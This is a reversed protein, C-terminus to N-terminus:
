LNQENDKAREVQRKFMFLRQGYTKRFFYELSEFQKPAFEIKEITRKDDGFIELQFFPDMTTIDGENISKVNRLEYKVENFWTRVYVYNDDFTVNSLKYTIITPLLFPLLLLLYIPNEKGIVLAMVSFISLLGFVLGFFKYVFTLRSSLNYRM